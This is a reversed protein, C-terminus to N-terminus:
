QLVQSGNAKVSKLANEAVNRVSSPLAAYQLDIGVTQGNNVFWDFLHVLAKAKNADTINSRLFVWSIGAIPYSRDGPENVISFNTASIDSVQSAAATAGGTSAKVFKGASNELLAMQLGSQIVYALEVYGIAGATQKVQSGVGANGKAGVEGAPWAVSKSTGVKTKWESSVKSLYDTVIYTTGSGDSRHVVTISQAPLSKGSNLAAVEPDNWKKVKGLFIDSLTKGDLQLNDVGPLNYAIAVAGLVVPVQVVSDAGGAAALESSKMPVDSAGFDVLNSAFQKIGAGSGVGQYNVTVTSHQQTYEYFAKQFFPEVFTSGAGTLNGRGVDQNASSASGSTEGCASAVVGLLLV